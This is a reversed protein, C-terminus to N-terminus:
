LLSCCNATRHWVPANVEKYVVNKYETETNAEGRNRTRRVLRKRELNECWFKIQM